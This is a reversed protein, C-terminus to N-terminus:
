GSYQYLGVNTLLIIKSAHIYFYKYRIYFAPNKNKNIADNNDHFWHQGNDPSSYIGQRHIGVYLVGNLMCIGEIIKGRFGIFKWNIGDESKYVGYNTAAYMVNEDTVYNQSVSAGSVAPIGSSYIIIHKWTNGYDQSIFTTGKSFGYLSNTYMKNNFFQIHSYGTSSGAPSINTWTAKLIEDLHVPDIVAKKICEKSQIFIVLKSSSQDIVGTINSEYVSFFFFQAQTRSWTKGGDFSAFLGATQIAILMMQKYVYIAQVSIDNYFHYKEKIINTDIKKWLGAKTGSAHYYIFNTNNVAYDDGNSAHFYNFINVGDLNMSQWVPVYASHKKHKRAFACTTYCTTIIFIVITIKKM